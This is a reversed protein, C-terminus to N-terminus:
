KPLKSIRITGATISGSSFTFRLANPMSTSNYKCALMCAIPPYPPGGDATRGTEFTGVLKPYGGTIGGPFTLVLTGTIAADLSPAVDSFNLLTFATDNASHYQATGTGSIYQSWMYHAATDWTSGGNISFLIQPTAGAGYVGIFQVLYQDYSASYWSTFDLTASTSATHTELVLATSVWAGNGNLYQTPDNPYAPFMNSLGGATMVPIIQGSDAHGTPNTGEVGRTITWTTGSINTCKCIETSGDNIMFRIFNIGTMAVFNSNSTVTVTVDGSLVAGGNSLTTSTNANYYNETM